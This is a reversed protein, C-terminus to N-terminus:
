IAPINTRLQLNAIFYFFYREGRKRGRQICTVCVIQFTRRMLHLDDKLHSYVGFDGFITNDLKLVTGTDGCLISSMECDRRTEILTVRLDPFCWIINHEGISNNHIRIRSRGDLSQFINLM